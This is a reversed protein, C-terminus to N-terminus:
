ATRGSTRDLQRHEQDEDGLVREGPEEEADRRPRDAGHDDADLDELVEAVAVLSSIRSSATVIATAARVARLMPRAVLRGHIGLIGDGTRTAAAPRRERGGSAAAPALHDAPRPRTAASGAGARPTRAAGAALPEGVAVLGLEVVQEVLDGGSPM